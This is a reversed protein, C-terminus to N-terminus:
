IKICFNEKKHIQNNNHIIELLLINNDRMIIDYKQSKNNSLGYRVFLLTLTGM